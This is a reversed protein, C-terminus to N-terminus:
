TLLCPQRFYNRAVRSSALVNRIGGGPRPSPYDDYRMCFWYQEVKFSLFAVGISELCEESIWQALVKTNDQVCTVLIGSSLSLFIFDVSKGLTDLRDVINQFTSNSSEYRVHTM